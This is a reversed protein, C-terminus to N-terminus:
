FNNCFQSGGRETMPHGSVAIGGMNRHGGGLWLFNGVGTSHYTYKGQDSWPVFNEAECSSQIPLNLSQSVGTTSINRMYNAANIALHIIDQFVCAHHQYLSTEISIFLM